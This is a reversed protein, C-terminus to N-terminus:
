SPPGHGDLGDRPPMRGREAVGSEVAAEAVAEAVWEHVRPDLPDPMLETESSM